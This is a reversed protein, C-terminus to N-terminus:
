VEEGAGGGDGEFFAAGEDDAVALGGQIEDVDVVHLGEGLGAGGDGGGVGAEVEVGLGDVVEGVEYCAFGEVEEIDGM